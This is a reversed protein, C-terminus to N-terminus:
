SRLARIIEDIRQRAEASLDEFEIGMGGVQSCEGEETTRVVRGVVEVPQDSGPLKFELEVATGIPQPNETEVFIGGENINSAFESFLADVTQYNVQVVVDARPSSRREIKEIFNPTDIRQASSKAMTEEMEM